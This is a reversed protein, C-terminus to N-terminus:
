GEEKDYRTADGRQGTCLPPTTNVTWESSQRCMHQQAHQQQQRVVVPAAAQVIGYGSGVGVMPAAALVELGPREQKRAKTNEQRRQLAWTGGETLHLSPM